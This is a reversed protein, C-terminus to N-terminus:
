VCVCIDDVYAEAYGHYGSLVKNMLRQFTSSSNQMGFPLVNYCFQGFSCIFSSKEKTEPDLPIQYFGKTLDLTSIYRAKSVEDLIEDIRPMVYPDFETIKNLARFNTILRLQVDSKHLAFLHSAYSSVIPEIIGMDLMADLEAKVKDNLAYPLRYTKHTTGKSSKTKILHM